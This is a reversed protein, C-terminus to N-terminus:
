FVALAEFLSKNLYKINCDIKLFAHAALHQPGFKAVEFAVKSEVGLSNLILKMTISKMLCSCNWPAFRKIRRMTKRAMRIVPQKESESAFFKPKAKLLFLYYKIPLLQVMVKIIASLLIGKILLKKEIAPISIFRKIYYIPKM